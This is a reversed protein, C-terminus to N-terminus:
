RFIDRTASSGNHPVSNWCLRSPLQILRVERFPRNQQARKVYPRRSELSRYSREPDHFRGDAPILM